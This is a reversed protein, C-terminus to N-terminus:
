SGPLTLETYAMDKLAMSLSTLSVVSAAGFVIGFLTLLSRMKHSRVERLAELMLEGWLAIRGIVPIPRSPM